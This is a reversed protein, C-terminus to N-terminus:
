LSAQVQPKKDFIHTNNDVSQALKTTAGIYLYTRNYQYNKTGLAGIVPCLALGIVGQVVGKAVRFVSKERMGQLPKQVM